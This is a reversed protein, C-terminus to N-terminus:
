QLPALVMVLIGGGEVVGHATAAVVLRGGASGQAFDRVLQGLVVRVQTAAELRHGCHEENM